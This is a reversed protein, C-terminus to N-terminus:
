AANAEEIKAIRKEFDALFGNAEAVAREAELSNIYTQTENRDFFKEVPSGQRDQSHVTINQTNSIVRKEVAGTNTNIIQFVPRWSASLKKSM